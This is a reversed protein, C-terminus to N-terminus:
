CVPGRRGSEPPEPRVRDLPSPATDGDGGGAGKVACVRDAYGTWDWFDHLVVRHLRIVSKVFLLPALAVRLWNRRPGAALITLGQAELRQRVHDLSLSTVHTPDDHFNLGMGRLPFRQSRIAPWELYLYGGEDVLDALGEILSAGTKLHELTHSCIVYDFRRGALSALGDRDLDCRIFGAGVALPGPAAINLATFRSGPLYAAALFSDQGEGGVDLVTAIRRRAAGSLWGYRPNLRRLLWLPWLKSGSDKIM